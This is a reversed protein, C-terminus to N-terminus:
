RSPILMDPQLRHFGKLHEQWYAQYVLNDSHFSTVQQRKESAYIMHLRGSPNKKYIMAALGNNLLILDGNEVHTEPIAYTNELLYKMPLWAKYRLGAKKAAAAYISHFLSSNDTTGTRAPVGGLQVPMGIFQKAVFPIHQRFLTQPSSVVQGKAQEVAQSASMTNPHSALALSGWLAILALSILIRKM